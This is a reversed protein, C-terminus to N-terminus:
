LQEHSFRGHRTKRAHNPQPANVGCGNADLFGAPRICGGPRCAYICLCINRGKTGTPLGGIPVFQKAELVRLLDRRFDKKSKGIEDLFIGGGACSALLGRRELAGDREGYLLSKLESTPLTAALSQWNDGRHSKSANRISEFWLEKGSGPEGEIFVRTLNSGKRCIVNWADFLDRYKAIAERWGSLNTEDPRCISLFTKEAGFPLGGILRGYPYPHLQSSCDLGLYETDGISVRLVITFCHRTRFSTTSQLWLLPRPDSPLEFFVEINNLEIPKQFDFQGPFNPRGDADFIFYSALREDGIGISYYHLVFTEIKQRQKAIQAIIREHSGSRTKWNRPDDRIAQAFQEAVYTPTLPEAHRMVPAPDYNHVDIAGDAGHRVKVWLLHRTEAILAEDATAAVIKTRFPQPAEESAFDTMKGASAM